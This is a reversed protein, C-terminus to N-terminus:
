KPKAEAIEKPLEWIRMIGDWSATLVRQGDTSVGVAIIAKTHGSFAHAEKGTDLDWVRAAQKAALKSHVKVKGKALLEASFEGGAGSIVYRGGPLFAVSNVSGMPEDLKLLEQGTEADWLRLTNDAGGSLIRKGDPSFALSRVIGTHGTFEKVEKGTSASWLRIEKNRGGTVLQKGDPAFAVSSVGLTHKGFQHVVKQNAVNLLKAIPDFKDFKDVNGFLISKSSPSFTVCEALVRVRFLEKGNDANWVHLAVDGGATIVRKGDSSIAACTYSPALGSVFRRIEKADDVDWLTGGDLLGCSFVRKGDGSLAASVISKSARGKVQDGLVCVERVKLEPPLNEARVVAGGLAITGFALCCWRMTKSVNKWNVM